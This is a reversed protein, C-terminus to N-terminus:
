RGANRTAANVVIDYVAKDLNLLDTASIAEDARVGAETLYYFRTPRGSGDTEMEVRSLDFDSPSATDAADPRFLGLFTEAIGGKEEAAYGALVLSVGTNLASQYQRAEAESTSSSARQLLPSLVTRSFQRASRANINNETGDEGFFVKNSDEIFTSAIKSAADVRAQVSANADAADKNLNRRLEGFRVRLTGQDIAQRGAEQASMSLTGTEKLNNMQSRADDRATQDPAIVSLLARTALQERTPLKSVDQISNVGAEQLRQRMTAIAEASFPLNGNDVAADVEEPTMGEVRAIVQNELQKYADTSMVPTRMGLSEELKAQVALKEDIQSQWYDKRVAAAKERRATLDKIEANVSELSSKNVQEIYVRREDDKVNIREQIRRQFEPSKNGEMTAQLEAIDDDYKEIRKKARNLDVESATMFSEGPVRVGESAKTAPSSYEVLEGRIDLVPPIEIGMRNAAETLISRREEDTEATALVRRFARSAAPDKQADLAAVVNGQLKVDATQADIDAQNVGMQAQYAAGLNTAAGDIVQFNVWENSLLKAFQEPTLMLTNENPDSGGQETLVGPEGNEYKGVVSLLGTRPDRNVATYTFGEPRPLRSNNLIDLALTDTAPNGEALDAILPPQDLEQANEASVYGLKGARNFLQGSLETFQEQEFTTAARKEQAQMIGLQGEDVAVQRQSVKIREAGQALEKEALKFNEDFQRKNENLRDRGLQLEDSQLGLQYDRQQLEREKFVNEKRQQGLAMASQFGALLGSGFDQVAM